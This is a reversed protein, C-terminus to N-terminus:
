DGSPVCRLPPHPWAAQLPAEWCLPRHRRARPVLHQHTPCVGSEMEGRRPRAGFVVRQWEVVSAGPRQTNEDAPASVAEKTTGHSRGTQVRVMREAMIASGSSSPLHCRGEYDRLAKEGKRHAKSLAASDRDSLGGLHKLTLRLIQLSYWQIQKLTPNPPLEPLVLPEVPAAEPAQTDTIKTKRAM